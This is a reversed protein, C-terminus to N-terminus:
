FIRRGEDSTPSGLRGLTGMFATLFPPQLVFFNLQFDYSAALM